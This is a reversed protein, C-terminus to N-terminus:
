REFEYEEGAGNLEKAERIDWIYCRKQYQKEWNTDYFEDEM